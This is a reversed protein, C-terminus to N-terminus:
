PLITKNEFRSHKKKEGEGLTGIGFQMKDIEQDPLSANAANWIRLSVHALIEIQYKTQMYRCRM